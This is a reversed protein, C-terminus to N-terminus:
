AYNTGEILADCITWFGETPIRVSPVLGLLSNIVTRGFPLSPNENSVSSIIAEAHEIAYSAEIHGRYHFTGAANYKENIEAVLGASLPEGCSELVIFKNELYGKEGLERVFSKLAEDTRGTIVIVGRLNSPATELSGSYLIVNDPGLVEAWEEAAEFFEGQLGVGFTNYDLIVALEDSQISEQRLRSVYEALDEEPADIYVDNQPYARQIAHTFLQMGSLQPGSTDTLPHATFVLAKNAQNLAHMLRTLESSESDPRGSMAMSQVSEESVVFHNRGELFEYEGGIQIAYEGDENLIVSALAFEESERREAIATHRRLYNHHCEGGGLIRPPLMGGDDISFRLIKVGDADLYLDVSELSAETDVSYVGVLESLVNIRQWRPMGAYRVTAVGAINLAGDSLAPLFRWLEDFVEHAGVISTYEILADVYQQNFEGIQIMEARLKLSRIYAHLVSVSIEGFGDGLDTEIRSIADSQLIGQEELEVIHAKAGLSDGSNLLNSIYEVEFLLRVQERVALPYSQLFTERQSQVFPPPASAFSRGTRDAFMQRFSRSDVRSGGQYGLSYHSTVQPNTRAFATTCHAEASTAFFFISVLLNVSTYFFSTPSRM